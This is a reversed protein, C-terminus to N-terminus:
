LNITDLDESTSKKRVGLALVIMPIGTVLLDIGVFVAVVWAGSV